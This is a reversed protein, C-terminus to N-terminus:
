ADARVGGLQAAVRRRNEQVLIKWKVVDWTPNMTFFHEVPEGNAAGVWARYTDLSIGQRKLYRRLLTEKSRAM